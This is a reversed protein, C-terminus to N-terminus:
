AGARMEGLDGSTTVAWLQVSSAPSALFEKKQFNDNLRNASLKYELSNSVTDDLAYPDYVSRVLKGIAPATERMEEPLRKIAVARRAATM